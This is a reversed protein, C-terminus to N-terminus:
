HRTEGDPQPAQGAPATVAEIRESKSKGHEVHFLDAQIGTAARYSHLILDFEDRDTKDMELLKILNRMQGTDFGMGKAERFVDSIDEALGKKENTLRRIRDIYRKLDERDKDTNAPKGPDAM